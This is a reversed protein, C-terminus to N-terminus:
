VEVPNKHIKMYSIKSEKAVPIESFSNKGSGIQILHMPNEQEM